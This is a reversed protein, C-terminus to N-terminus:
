VGGVVVYNVTYTDAATPGTTFGISLATTTASAFVGLAETATDNASVVVVPAVSYPTAFHVTLSTGTTAPAGAKYVIQGYEDRGSLSFTATADDVVSLSPAAAETEGYGNARLRPIDHYAM